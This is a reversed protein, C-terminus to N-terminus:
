KEKLKESVDSMLANFKTSADRKMTKTMRAYIDMTTSLSAHGLREQIEKIHVGAEILLSTHTHRFSHSTLSKNIDTYSLLRKMRDNILTVTLPYGDNSAFIFGHDQYLEGNHQKVEEQEVQHVKLLDIVLPDISITRVSKQTKPTFLEFEKRNNNINHITKTVRLTEAEFDIDTWKLSRLEGVRLGTYAITTFLPFDNYLGKDKTVSLFAQLEEKEMYNYTVDTNEIDEVTQREKPLKVGDCPSQRILKLKEKAYQFMLKCTIHIIKVHSVSYQSAIDNIFAQYDQATVKQVYPNNLAAIVKKLAQKRMKLTSYKVEHRYTDIWATALAELTLNSPEIYEGQHIQREILAAALEADKRKKFGGKSVQKDYGTIPDKGVYVRYTYTKGRKYVAM